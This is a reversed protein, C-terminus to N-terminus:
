ALGSIQSEHDMNPSPCFNLGNILLSMMADTIVLDSMNVICKSLEKFKTTKKMKKKNVWTTRKVFKRSGNKEGEFNTQQRKMM